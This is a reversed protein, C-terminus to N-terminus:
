GYIREIKFSQKRGGERQVSSCVVKYFFLTCLKHCEMVLVSLIIRMFWMFSPAENSFIERKKKKIQHFGHLIVGSRGWFFSFFGQPFWCELRLYSFSCGLAWLLLCIGPSCSKWEPLSSSPFIQVFLLNVKSTATKNALELGPKREAQGGAVPSPYDSAAVPQWPLSLSSPM